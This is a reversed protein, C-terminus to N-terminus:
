FDDDDLSQILLLEDPTAPLEGGLTLVQDRLQTAWRAMVRALRKWHRLQHALFDIRETLLTIQQQFAAREEESKEEGAVVRARLATVEDRYPALLEQWANLASEQADVDTARTAGEKSASATFRAGLYGLYAVVVTGMLGLATLGAYQWPALGDM